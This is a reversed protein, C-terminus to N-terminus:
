MDGNLKKLFDKDALELFCWIAAGNFIWYLTYREYDLCRDKITFFLNIIVVCILFAILFKERKLDTVSPMKRKGRVIDLVLFIVCFAMCLDAIGVSGSSKIYFQKLFVFLLFAAQTM